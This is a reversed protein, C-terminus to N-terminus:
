YLERLYIMADAGRYVGFTARGTPNNDHVLDGDWDFYLWELGAGTATALDVEIDIYGTNNM